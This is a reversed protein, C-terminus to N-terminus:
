GALTLGYAKEIGKKKLLETTKRLVFGTKVFDDILFVNSIRKDLKNIELVRIKFKKGLSKALIEAQNYGRKRFDKNALPIPVFVFDKRKILKMFSENQIISEYFLETLINTLDLLYPKNKFSYILKRAIFNYRIASFCGDITYKKSCYKHTFNSLSQRKCVLCINKTDFSIFSFCNPCIYDGLIKCNICRKPFIYDLIGM